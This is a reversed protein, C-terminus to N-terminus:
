SRTVEVYRSWLSSVLHYIASHLQLFSPRENMMPVPRRNTRTFPDFTLPAAVSLPLPNLRQRGIDLAKMDSLGLGM